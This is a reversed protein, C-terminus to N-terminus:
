VYSKEGSFLSQLTPANIGGEIKKLIYVMRMMILNINITSNYMTSTNKTTTKEIGEEKTYERLTKCQDPDDPCFLVKVPVNKGM